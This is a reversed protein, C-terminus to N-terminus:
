ANKLSISQLVQAVGMCHDITGELTDFVEKWRLVDMPDPTGSLLSCGDGEQYIADGEEELRKIEDVERSVEAPKKIGAVASRIHAAASVLVRALERAGPKVGVIHLMEYRRAVGDVLDM